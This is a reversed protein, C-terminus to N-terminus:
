AAVQAIAIPTALRARRVTRLAWDMHCFAVQAARSVSAKNAPM